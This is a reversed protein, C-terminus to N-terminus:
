GNELAVANELHIMLQVTLENASKTLRAVNTTGRVAGYQMMSHDGTREVLAKWPKERNSVGKMQQTMM